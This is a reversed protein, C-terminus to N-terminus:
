SYYVTLKAGTPLASLYIGGPCLIGHDPIVFDEHSNGTPALTVIDLKTAGGSGDTITVNGGAGNALSLVLGRIRARGAFVSGTAAVATAKIDNM